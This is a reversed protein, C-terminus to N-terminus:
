KQTIEYGHAALAAIARNWDAEKVLIYDTDYTSVAFIGIKERALIGSLRSLIGILSFDLTGAIRFCRWGDERALIEEPASGVPCVVSLELDTKGIFCFKETLLQPPLTQVKCVTFIDPLIELKM